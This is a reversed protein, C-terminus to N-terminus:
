LDDINFLSRTSPCSKVDIKLHPAVLGKNESILLLFDSYVLLRISPHDILLVYKMRVRGHKPPCTFDGVRHLNNHPKAATM